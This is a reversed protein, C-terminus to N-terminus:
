QRGACIGVFELGPQQDKRAASKQLLQVMETYGRRRAHELPTVGDRDALNAKAGHELLLAMIEVHKAGGDGLIITELLATWGLNNVHNIDIKTKLLERVVEVHGYHCAPILANGGYQNLSRVDAGAALALRVIEVYGPAAATMLPSTPVNDRENVNSGAALLRRFLEAHNGYAANNLATKGSGDKARVDAGESLLKEVAPLEGRGAAAILELNRRSSDDATATEGAVAAILWVVVFLLIHILTRLKAANVM